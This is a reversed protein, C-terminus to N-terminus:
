CISIAVNYQNAACERYFELLNEFHESLEEAIEELEDDDDEEWISPYIDNKHLLSFPKEAIKAPFDVAEMAAVVKPLVDAPIYATFIESDKILEKDGVIAISLLDDEIPESASVGTLIFHLADWMKDVDVVPVSDDENEEEFADYLDDLNMKKLQALREDDYARYEAYMGM